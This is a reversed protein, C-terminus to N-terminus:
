NSNKGQFFKLVLFKICGSNIALAHQIHIPANNHRHEIRIRQSCMRIKDNLLLIYLRLIFVFYAFGIM